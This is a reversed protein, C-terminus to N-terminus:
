SFARAFEPLHTVLTYMRVGSVMIIFDDETIQGDGNKDLQKFLMNAGMPASGAGAGAFSDGGGGSPPVFGGGGGGDGHTKDKFMGKGIKFLKDM